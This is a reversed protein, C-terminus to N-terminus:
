IGYEKDERGAYDSEDNYCIAKIEEVIVFAAVFIRLPKKEGRQCNFVIGMCEKETKCLQVMCM